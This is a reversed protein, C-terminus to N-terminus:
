LREVQQVYRWGRETEVLYSFTAWWREERECTVTGAIMQRDVRM